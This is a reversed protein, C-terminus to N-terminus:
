FALPGTEHLPPPLADLTGLKHMHAGVIRGEKVEIRWYGEHGLQTSSGAGFLHPRTNTAPHHFRRHIHGHLVAFRPGHIIEFLSRADMLRHHPKDGGGHSDLPAHHVVVLVARDKIREDKLLDRLGSLQARGIVGWSMGPVMPIRASLMGVVATRDPLLRVFPYAGERQYEPLDSKTLQGFHREFRKDLVARPTYTDHNGPIVTCRAKDEALAGLAERAGAFEQELAYATIDGSLIFHDDRHREFDRAIQALAAKADAYDRRRGGLELKYFAIWRRWGLQLLPITRYNATIHVDSCHLVHM